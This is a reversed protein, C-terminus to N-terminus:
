VLTTIDVTVTSQGVEKKPVVKPSQMIESLQPSSIHLSLPLLALLPMSVTTVVTQLRMRYALPEVLHPVRSNAASWRDRSQSAQGM